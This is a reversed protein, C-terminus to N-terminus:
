PRQNWEQSEGFVQQWEPQNERVLRSRLVVNEFEKGMWKAGDQNNGPKFPKPTSQDKLNIMCIYKYSEIDTM